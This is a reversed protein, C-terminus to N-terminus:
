LDSQDASSSFVTQQLGDISSYMNEKVKTDDLCSLRDGYTPNRVAVVNDDIHSNTSLNKHITADMEM